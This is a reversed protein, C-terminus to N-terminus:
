VEVQRWSGMCDRNEIEIVLITHNMLAADGVGHLLLTWKGFNPTDPRRGRWDRRNKGRNQEKEARTRHDREQFRSEKELILDSTGRNLIAISHIRGFRVHARATM